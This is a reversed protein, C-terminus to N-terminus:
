GHRSLRSQHLTNIVSGRRRKEFVTRGGERKGSRGGRTNFDSQAQANMRGSVRSYLAISGADNIKIKGGEAERADEEEKERERQYDPSKISPRKLTRELSPRPPYPAFRRMRELGM